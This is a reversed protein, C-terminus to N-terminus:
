PEVSAALADIEHGPSGNASPSADHSANPRSLGWAGLEDRRHEIFASLVIFVDEGERDHVSDYSHLKESAQGIL